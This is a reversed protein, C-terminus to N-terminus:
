IENEPATLEELHQQCSLAIISTTLAATRVGGAIQFFEVDDDQFNERLKYQMSDSM